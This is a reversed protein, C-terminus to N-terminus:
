NNLFKKISDFIGETDLKLMKNLEAVSGQEVFQDPYGLHLIKNNRKNKSLIEAVGQGAGGEICGDEITVILSTQDASYKLIAQDDLPKAFRMDILTADLRNAVDICNALLTGFCMIVIKFGERVVHSMGLEVPYDSITIPLEAGRPYRVAIPHNYDCAFTLLKRLELFCSPTAIVLNPIIRLFAIDFQGQHTPGDAGVLGARDVAIVIPADNIAADHIIQDFARQLFTSYICVIPHLGQLALGVSFTIAHQEAIAVDFFRDPYKDAFENMSSGDKMAPTIAVLKPDIKARELLFEGFIQSYNKQENKPLDENIVFKPVGHYKTPNDEAPTYGKGKQTVIHLIQPGKLDRMNKLTEVLSKVDHGDIPGIYNFGFEEFLTGPMVMGKLHEQTKLTFDKLFPFYKGIFDNTGNKINNYIESSLIYSLNTSVAGVTSSISNENDNLIVLMDAGIGGAHNLAEFAMGGTLAGDGIIAVTRNENQQLKNAISMGLAIGISTSSHGVSVCDYESEDKWPFPHLGDKHRITELNKARGTLIKHPYAQHGVDWIINDYPTNYVYHLAVTLEIVGLGSALHGSSKSVSDLLFDRVESCLEPLKELSLKKLQIPSEIDALLPYKQKDVIM